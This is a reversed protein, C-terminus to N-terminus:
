SVEPVVSGLLFHEHEIGRQFLSKQTSVPVLLSNTKKSSLYEKWVSSVRFSIDRLQWLNGHTNFFFSNHKWEVHDLEKDQVSCHGLGWQCEISITTNWLLFNSSSSTRVLQWIKKDLFAILSLNRNETSLTHTTDICETSWITRLWRECIIWQQRLQHCIHTRRSSDDPRIFIYM